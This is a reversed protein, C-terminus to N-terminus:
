MKNLKEQAQAAEPSSGYSSVIKQYIIKATENDSLKEFAMGQRLMAAAARPHKAQQAIIKQYQLIAQDFEKQQFLCEGMMYRAEIADSGSPNDRIYQEYLSFSQQYKGSDFLNKAEALGGGATSAPVAATAAAKAQPQQSPTVIETGPQPM